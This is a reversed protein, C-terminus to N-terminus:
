ANDLEAKEENTAERSHVFPLEQFENMFDKLSGAGRILAYGKGEARDELLTFMEGIKSVIEEETPGSDKPIVGSYWNKKDKGSWPDDGDEEAYYRFRYQVIWGEDTRNIGCLWDTTEDLSIYWTAVISEDIAISV